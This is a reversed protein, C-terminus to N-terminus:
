GRGLGHIIIRVFSVHHGQGTLQAHVHDLMGQRRDVRLLVILQVRSVRAVMGHTIRRVSIVHHGQTGLKAYM